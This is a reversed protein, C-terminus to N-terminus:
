PEGHESQWEHFKGTEYPTLATWGIPWGMVMEEFEPLCMSGIVTGRLPNSSGGWEDIRGMTNNRGGNVGSPTPLSLGSATASTPSDSAPLKSCVGARMSGWRPWTGSFSASDAALSLQATKWSCTAPDFKVWSERWKEGSAPDSAKSAPAKGPLASTRARSAELFWTLLERWPGGDFSCVDSWIPFPEICRDNQRQALLQASHADREVACVCRWGLLHGGLIGGGAGAFLALENL